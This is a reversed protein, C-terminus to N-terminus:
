RGAVIKQDFLWGIEAETKGLERLVATTHEGLLPPPAVPGLKGGFRLPGRLLRMRQAVTADDGSGEAPLTCERTVELAEVQPDTLMEEITYIPGSPVGAARLRAVWEAATCRALCAEIRERLAERNAARATWDAFMPEDLLGRDGLVESFIRWQEDTAGAINIPRDSAQFVGYPTIIPHDNGNRGPVEGLSLYRQAQFALAAIGSELLSTEVLSGPRDTGRRALAAVTGLAAFLGAFLDAVPVGMRLPQGGSLGNVSMLGSMGQAVQDVAGENAYPGVPGFGSISTIILEPRRKRLEQPDLGLQAMIGPRFNEVIVDCADALEALLRKGAPARFDIAISRKNRNTSLFYVSHEGAFPGWSRTHDGNPLSEVKVVEAGLDGLLSTCFPGALVRSLDLIRIGRLPQEM